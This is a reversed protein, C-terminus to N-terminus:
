QSNAIFKYVVIGSIIMLLFWVRSTLAVKLMKLGRTKQNKVTQLTLGMENAIATNKLGEVYSFQLIKRCQPPLTEMEKLVEKLVEAKIEDQMSPGQEDQSLFYSLDEQSRSYGKRQKILNLSANRATIYLFAKINEISEFNARLKWLKLFTDATIEQAEGSNDVIRLTFYYIPGYFLDYVEAFAKEEGKQFAMIMESYNGKNM